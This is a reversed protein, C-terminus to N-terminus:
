RRKEGVVLAMPEYHPIPTTRDDEVAVPVANDTLKEFPEVCRQHMTEGRHKVLIGGCGCHLCTERSPPPYQPAEDFESLDDHDNLM